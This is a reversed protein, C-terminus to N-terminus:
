LLQYEFTPFGKEGQDNYFSIFRLKYFFGGADRVVYNIGPVIVYSVNGTSVDGVVDKWDYGIEDRVDSYGFGEAAELDIASFEHLTDQAVKVGARNSLVGTVLYPYPFGDNTYLLTTYQTFLLDWAYKPPELTMVTGGEEFSFYIFNVSTDKLIEATGEGSGDLNAFRVAYRDRSWETFVVKKVGRLNGAEDYGRDVIYVEGSYDPVSDIGSFTLWPGIATSDLNGTSPDYKWDLGTTDTAAAFDGLGTNGALMFNSTNLIVHWGGQGCEFGLDWDSKFNASVVSQSSLDYYVQYRYDSEMAIAETNVSGPDHPTIREDEKFCSQLSLVPLLLFLWSGTRM